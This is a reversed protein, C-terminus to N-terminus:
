RALHAAESLTCPTLGADRIGELVTRVNTLNASLDEDSFPGSTRSESIHWTHDALVYVGNDPVSAALDIYDQPCRKGEHMPWLYASIKRGESDTGETVPIEAIYGPLITPICCDAYAYQSSDVHIGTGGLFDGVARPQRMYPARFCTPSRGTVDRIAQCGHKVAEIADPRPMDTLVEHDYGHVGIEFGDLRGASDKVAEATRGELFFTAPLGIEDLMDTLLALGNETSSFRADTGNGRDLSGAAVQGPIVM